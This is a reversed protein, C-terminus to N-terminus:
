RYYMSMKIDYGYCKIMQSRDQFLAKDKFCEEVAQATTYHCQYSIAFSTLM